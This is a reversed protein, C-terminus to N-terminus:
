DQELNYDSRQGVIIDIIEGQMLHFNAELVAGKGRGGAGVSSGAPGAATVLYLGDAPVVWSQVGFNVRVNNHLNTEFYHEDCQEQTPGYMGQIGCSDFDWRVQVVPDLILGFKLDTSFNSADSDLLILLIQGM